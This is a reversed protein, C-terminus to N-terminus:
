IAREAPWACSAPGDALPGPEIAAIVEDNVGTQHRADAVGLLHQRPRAVQEVAPRQGGGQRLAQTLPLCAARRRSPPGLSPPLAHEPTKDGHQEGHGERGRAHSDEGGNDPREADTDPERDDQRRDDGADDNTDIGHAVNGFGGPECGGLRRHQRRLDVRPEVGLTARQRREGSATSQALARDM